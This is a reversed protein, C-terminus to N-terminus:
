LEGKREPRLLRGLSRSRQTEVLGTDVFAVGAADGMFEEATAVPEEAASCRGPCLRLLDAVTKFDM